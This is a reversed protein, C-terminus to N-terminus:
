KKLTEWVAKQELFKKELERYRDACIKLEEFDKELEPNPIMIAMREQLDLLAKRMSMGDLVIDTDTIQVKPQKPYYSDISTAWNGAGATTSYTLGAGGFGGTLTVNSYNTGASGAGTIPYTVSYTPQKTKTM